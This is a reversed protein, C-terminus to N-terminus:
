DLEGRRWAAASHELDEATRVLRRASRTLHTASEASSAEVADAHHTQGLAVVRCFAAFRELAVDFEGEFAGSLITDAMAKVEEAGLPEAVGAVVKSVQAVDKGAAYYAAVREPDQQAASRLAYLRWLAGPLSRAPSEAWMEAISELGQRDALKVLRRTIEPDSSERGHHVLAQAALHAAESVRAPDAGGPFNAFDLPAYLKPKHHRPPMENSESM